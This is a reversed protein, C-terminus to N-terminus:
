FIKDKYYDQPGMHSIDFLRLLFACIDDTSKKNMIMNHKIVHFCAQQEHSGRQLYPKFNWLAAIVHFVRIDCIGECLAMDTQLLNINDGEKYFLYCMEWHTNEILPDIVDYNGDWGYKHKRLEPDCDDFWKRFIEEAEKADIKM